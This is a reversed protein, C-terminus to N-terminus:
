PHETRAVLLAAAMGGIGAGVVVVHRQTDM